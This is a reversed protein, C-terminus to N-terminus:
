ASNHQLLRPAARQHGIQAMGAACGVFFEIAQIHESVLAHVYAAFQILRASFTLGHLSVIPGGLQEANGVDIRFLVGQINVVDIILLAPLNAAHLSRIVRILARRPFRHILVQAIRRPRRSSLDTSAASSATRWRMRSQLESSRARTIIPSGFQRTDSESLIAARGRGNVSSDIPLQILSRSLFKRCPPGCEARASPSTAAM